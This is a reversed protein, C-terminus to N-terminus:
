VVIDGEKKQFIIQPEQTLLEKFDDIEDRKQRSMKRETKETEDDM